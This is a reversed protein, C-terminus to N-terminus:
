DNTLSNDVLPRYVFGLKGMANSLADLTTQPLHRSCAIYIPLAPLATISNIPVLKEIDPNENKAFHWQDEPVITYHARGALLMNLLQLDTKGTRLIWPSTQTALIADVEDGYVGSELLSGILSKDQVLNALSGHARIKTAEQPVAVVLDGPVIDFIYPLFSWQAARDPTRLRGTTCILRRGDNLMRAEEDISSPYWAVKFGALSVIKEIQDAYLGAPQGDVIRLHPPYNYYTVVLPAREEALVPASLTLLLGAIWLLSKM